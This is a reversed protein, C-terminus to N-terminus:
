FFAFNIYGSELKMQVNKAALRCLRAVLARLKGVTMAGAPPAILYSSPLTHTYLWSPLQKTTRTGNCVIQVSVLREVLAGTARAEAIECEDAAGYAQIPLMEQYFPKISTRLLGDVLKQYFPHDRAFQREREADGRSEAYDSAYAKIYDIHAGRREKKSVQRISSIHNLHNPLPM